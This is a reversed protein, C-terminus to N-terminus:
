RNIGSTEPKSKLEKPHDIEIPTSAEFVEIMRGLKEDSELTFDYKDRWREPLRNKLWFFCAIKDPPVHVVQHVKIVRGDEHMLKEAVYTYGTACQFLCEEVLADPDKKGRKIEESFEPFELKWKYFTSTAIGLKKSMEEDILGNKAMWFVLQPTWVPNYKSKYRSPKNSSKKIKSEPM